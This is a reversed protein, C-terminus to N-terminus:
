YGDEALDNAIVELSDLHHDFEVWTTFTTSAPTHYRTNFSRNSPGYPRIDMVKLAEDYNGARAYDLAVLVNHWEASFDEPRVDEGEAGGRLTRIMVVGALCVSCTGDSGTIVWDRYDPEYLYRDISRGDEIAMRIADSLKTPAPIDVNM